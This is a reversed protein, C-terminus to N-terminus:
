EKRDTLERLHALKREYLQLSERHMLLFRYNIDEAAVEPHDLCYQMGPLKELREISTKLKEIQEEVQIMERRTSTQETELAICDPCLASVQNTPVRVEVAKCRKCMLVKTAQARAPTRRDKM